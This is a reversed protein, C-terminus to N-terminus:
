SVALATGGSPALVAFYYPVSRQPLRCVLAEGDSAARGWVAVGDYWGSSQSVVRHCRERLGAGM